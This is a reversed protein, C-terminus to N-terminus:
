QNETSKEPKYFINKFWKTFSIGVSYKDVQGDVPGLYSDKKSAFVKIDPEEKLQYNVEVNGLPNFQKRGDNAYTELVVEGGVSVTVKDNMFDKSFDYGISNVGQLNNVSVNEETDVYFALDASKINRRSLENLKSVVGRMTSNGTQDSQKLTGFILLNMAYNERTDKPLGDIYGGIEGNTSTLDFDIEFEDLPSEKVSAIVTVPVMTGTKGTQGSVENSSIRFLETGKFSIVPNEVDGSFKVNAYEIKLNLDSVMPADYFITGHKSKIEGFVRPVMGRGTKLKLHGIASMRIFDNSGESLLIYMKTKGLDVKVDWYIQSSEPEIKVKRHTAVTDSFSTFEIEEDLKNVTVTTHYKYGINTSNLSNFHGSISLESLTGTFKLDTSVDMEGWYQKRKNKQDLVRFQSASARLTMTKTDSIPILGNLYLPNGQNDQIEFDNFSFQEHNVQIASNPISLFLGYEDFKAKVKSFHIHGDATLNENYEGQLKGDLSGDVVGQFGWQQLIPNLPALEYKKLDVLFTLPLQNEKELDIVLLSNEHIFTQKALFGTELFHGETFCTGVLFTDIEIKSLEGNWTLNQTSLEYESTLNLEGKLISDGSLLTYLQEIKFDTLAMNIVGNSTNVAIQQSDSKVKFDSKLLEWDHNFTAGENENVIWEQKGVIIPKKDQFKIVKTTSSDLFQLAFDIPKNFKTLLFYLHSNTKNKEPSDIKLKIDNLNSYPNKLSDIVLNGNYTKFNTSFILSSNTVRYEEFSILPSEFNMRVSNEATEVKLNTINLYGKKGVLTAFLNSDLELHMQTEFFPYNLTDIKPQGLWAFTESDGLFFFVDANDANLDMRIGNMTDASYQLTVLKVYDQELSDSAFLMSDMELSFYMEAETSKFSGSLPSMISGATTKTDTLKPIDTYIFGTFQISDFNFLNNETELNLDFNQSQSKTNLSSHEPTIHTLAKFFAINYDDYRINDCLINAEVAQINSKTDLQVITSFDLKKLTLNEPTATIIQHTNVSESNLKLNIKSAGQHQQAYTADLNIINKNLDLFGTTELGSLNGTILLNSSIDIDKQDSITDLVFLRQLEFLTSKFNSIHLKTAELTEGVVAYGNATATTLEDLKLEFDNFIISDNYWTLDGNFEIETDSAVPFDDTFQRIVDSNIKSHNISVHYSEKASIGANNVDLNFLPTSFAFNKLDMDGPKSISFNEGNSTLHISDQYTLAFHHLKFDIPNESGIGSLAIDIDKIDYPEDPYNLVMRGNTLNLHNANIKIIDALASVTDTSPITDPFSIVLLLNSSAISDTFIGNRVEFNTAYLTPIDVLISDLGDKSEYLIKTGNVQDFHIPLIGALVDEDSGEGTEAPEEDNKLFIQMNDANLFEGSLEGKFLNKWRWNLSLTQATILISENDFRLETVSLTSPFDYDFDQYTLGMNKIYSNLAIGGVIGISAIIIVFISLRKLYRKVKSKPM